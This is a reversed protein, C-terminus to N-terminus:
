ILSVEPAKTDAGAYAEGTLLLACVNPKSAGLVELDALYRTGEAYPMGVSYNAHQDDPRMAYCALGAAVTILKSALPTVVLRSGGMIEMSEKYRTMANFLQRYAEFPNAEHAYLGHAAMALLAPSPASLIWDRVKEKRAKGAQYAHEATEYEKGEFVLKRRFLNSFAGYPKENARYFHIENKTAKSNKELQAVEPKVRALTRTSVNKGVKRKSSRSPKATIVKTRKKEAFRKM